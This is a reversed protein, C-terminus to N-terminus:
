RQRILWTEPNHKERDKWIEFHLLSGSISEGSRAIIQGEQIKQMENVFID